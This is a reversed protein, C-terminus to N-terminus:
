ENKLLELKKIVQKQQAETFEYTDKHRDVFKPTKELFKKFKEESIKTKIVKRQKDETNDPYTIGGETISGQDTVVANTLEINLPAYKSILLKM